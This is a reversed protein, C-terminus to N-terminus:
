YNLFNVELREKWGVEMCNHAGGLILSGENTSGQLGVTM